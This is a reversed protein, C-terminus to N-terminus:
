QSSTQPTCSAVTSDTWNAITRNNTETLKMALNLNEAYDKLAPISTSLAGLSTNVDFLTQLTLKQGASVGSLSSVLAGAITTFADRGLEAGSTPMLKAALAGYPLELTRAALYSKYIEELRSSDLATSDAPPLKAEMEQYEKLSARLGKQATLILFTKPATQIQSKLQDLTVDLTIKLASAGGTAYAKVAEAMATSLVDQVKSYQQLALSTDLILSVRHSGNRADSSVIVNERTWAATALHGLLAKDSVQAGKEDFFLHPLNPGAPGRTKVKYLHGQSLLSYGADMIECTSNNSGTSSSTANAAPLSQAPQGFAGTALKPITRSLYDRVTTQQRVGDESCHLFSGVECSSGFPFFDFNYNKGAVQFTISAASKFASRTPGSATVQSPMESLQKQGGVAFSIEKAELSLNGTECRKIGREHCVSFILRGLRLAKDWATSADQDRGAALYSNGLWVWAEASSPRQNSAALADSIAAQWDSSQFALQGAHMCGDYDGCNATVATASKPIAFETSGPSGAQEPMSPGLAETSASRTSALEQVQTRWKVASSTQDAWQLFDPLDQPPIGIKYTKMFHLIGFFYMDAFGDGRAKFAAAEKINEKMVQLGKRQMLDPSLQVANRVYQQVFISDGNGAHAFAEVAWNLYQVAVEQRLKAVQDELQHDGATAESAMTGLSSAADLAGAELSVSGESLLKNVWDKRLDPKLTLAKKVDARCQDSGNFQRYKKPGSSSTNTMTDFCKNAVRQFYASGLVSQAEGSISNQSELQSIAADWLGVGFFRKAMALRVDPGGAWFTDAQAVRQVSIVLNTRSELQFQLITHQLLQSGVVPADSIIPYGVTVYVTIGDQSPRTETINPKCSPPLLGTTAHIGQTPDGWMASLTEGYDVWYTQAQTLRKTTNQYYEGVVKPWLVQPNGNRLQAVERQYHQTLDIVTTFDHRQLAGIYKGVTVQAATPDARQALAFHWTITLALNLILLFARAISTTFM